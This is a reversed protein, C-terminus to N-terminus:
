ATVNDISEEKHYNCNLQVAILLLDLEKCHAYNIKSKKTLKHNCFVCDACSKKLTGISM